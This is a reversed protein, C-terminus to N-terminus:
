PAGTTTDIQVNGNMGVRLEVEPPVDVFTVKVPFRQALRVWDVTPTVNPLDGRDATGAQQQIGWSIGEVVGKLRHEPYAQLRIAAEQGPKIRALDSELFNGAIRWTNTTILTFLPTGVTVYNGPPLNLGSVFGDAVATVKTYSLDLEADALKAKALLIRANKEGPEGLEAQAQALKTEAERLEAESQGVQSKAKADNARAEKFAAEANEVAQKSTAGDRELKKQRAFTKKANDLAAESNKVGSKAADVDAKASDIAAQATKVAEVLAQVDQRTQELEAKAQDVAIQFPKPDIELLLDNKKVRADNKIPSQTIPGEIQAAVQIIDAEVYGDDTSPMVSLHRFYLFGSVLAGVVAIGIVIRTTLKTM